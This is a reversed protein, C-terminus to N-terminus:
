GGASLLHPREDRSRDPSASTSARTQSRFEVVGDDIPDDLLMTTDRGYHM